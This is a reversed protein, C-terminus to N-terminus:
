GKFINLIVWQDQAWKPSKSSKNERLNTKKWIAWTRAKFRRVTWINNLTWVKRKLRIRSNEWNRIKKLFKRSLLEKKLHIKMSLAKWVKKNLLLIERKKYNKSLTKEGDQFMNRLFTMTFKEVEKKRKLEKQKLSNKGNQKKEKVQSNEQEQSFLQPPPSPFKM